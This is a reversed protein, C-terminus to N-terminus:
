GTFWQRGMSCNSNSLENKEEKQNNKWKELQLLFYQQLHLPNYMILGM